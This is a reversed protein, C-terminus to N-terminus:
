DNIRFEQKLYNEIDKLSNLIKEIEDKRKKYLPELKLRKVEEHWKNQSQDVSVGWTTNLFRALDSTKTNSPIVNTERLANFFIFYATKNKFPSNKINSGTINNTFKYKKSENENTEWNRIQKENIKPLLNFQDNYKLILPNLYNIMESKDSYFSEFCQYNLFEDLHMIDIQSIIWYFCLDYLEQYNKKHRTLETSNEDFSYIHTKDIDERVILRSCKNPKDSEVEAILKKFYSYDINGVNNIESYTFSPKENKLMFIRADNYIDAAFDKFKNNICKSYVDVIVEGLYIKTVEEM